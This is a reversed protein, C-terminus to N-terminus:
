RKRTPWSGAAHITHAAEHGGCGDRSPSRLGSAHGPQPGDRRLDCTTLRSGAIGNGYLVDDAGVLLDLATSTENDVYAFQSLLVDVVM